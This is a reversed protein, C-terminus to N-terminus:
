TTFDSVEGLPMLHFDADRCREEVMSEALAINSEPFGEDRLSQYYAAVLDKGIRRIDYSIGPNPSPRIVWVLTLPPDDPELGPQVHASLIQRQRREGGREEGEEGEEAGATPRGSSSSSPDSGPPRRLLVVAVGGTSTHIKSRELAYSRSPADVGHDPPETEFLTFPVYTTVAGGGANSSRSSGSSGSGGNLGSSGSASIVDHNSKPVLVSSSPSPLNSPTPFSLTAADAASVALVFTHLVESMDQRRSSPRIYIYQLYPVVLGAAPPPSSPGAANTEGNQLTDNYADTTDIDTRPRLPLPLISFQAAGIAKGQKDRLGVIRYPALGTRTNAAQAALRAVILDSNEREPRRPFSAVYLDDYLTTFDASSVLEILGLNPLATQQLRSLPTRSLSDIDIPSPASSLHSALSESLYPAFISPKSSVEPSAQSM